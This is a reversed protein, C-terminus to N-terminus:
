GFYGKAAAMLVAGLIVIIYTVRDKAAFLVPDEHVLGRSALFWIRMLWYMLLPCLLWLIAPYAYMSPTENSRENIYLSFVLVTCMAAASGMHLLVSRDDVQYGRGSSHEKGSAELDILDIWRKVMALSSFLFMSFALLWPTLVIDLVVAGTIIRYTFLGALTLVDLIIIRKLYFTYASTLALYGLLMGLLAYSDVLLVAPVIALILLCLALCLAVPISLTGAALPRKSKKPHHRDNEIDLCDNIIYVHSAVFSFCAFTLLGSFWLDQEGFRFALLLPLFILANKLWQHPRILKIMAKLTSTSDDFRQAFQFGKELGSASGALYAQESRQWIPVDKACDGVYDFSGYTKALLDAKHQSSLNVAATSGHAATFIQLYGAVEDVIRQDAASALVLSRGAAHQARLFSLLSERYPLLAPDPRVYQAIQAKFGAKGKCLWFPLLFILLPRRYCLLAISEWLTDTRVLSGDLDVCLPHQEAMLAVTKM